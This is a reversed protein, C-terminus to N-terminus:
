TIMQLLKLIPKKNILLLPSNRDLEIELIIGPEKLEKLKNALNDKPKITEELVATQNRKVVKEV